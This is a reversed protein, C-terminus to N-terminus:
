RAGAPAVVVAGAMTLTGVDTMPAGILVQGDDLAAVAAGLRAHKSSGKIVASASAPVDTVTGKPLADAHWMLLMGFEPMTWTSAFPAGVALVVAPPAEPSASASSASAITEKVHLWELTSGLRALRLGNAGGQLMTVAPVMGRTVHLPVPAAAAAAAIVDGLAYIVVEGGRLTSSLFSSGASPASAAILADGDARGARDGSLAAVRSGFEAIPELGEVVFLLPPSKGRATANMAFYAALDYGYVAGVTPITSPPPSALRHGPAGVVLVRRATTANASAVAFSSGFQDYEAPGELVIDAGARADITKAATGQQWRGETKPSALIGFVAGPQISKGPLPHPLVFSSLQAGIILDDFGDGNLDGGAIEMGLFTADDRTDIVLSPAAALGVGTQGLYVYVRGWYRFHITDNNPVPDADEFSAVPASVALDDIGDQNLDVVALSWGFRAHAMPGVLRSSSAVGRTCNLTVLVAGVQQRGPAGAGYEGVAMDLNGNGDFDGTVISRGRYGLAVPATTAADAPSVSESVSASASATTRTSMTMETAEVINDLDPSLELSADAAVTNISDVYDVTRWWANTTPNTPTTPKTTQTTQTLQTPQTSLTTPEDMALFSIRSIEAAEAALVAAPPAGTAKTMSTVLVDLVGLFAIGTELSLVGRKIVLGASPHLPDKLRVISSPDELKLLEEVHGVFPKLKLVFDRIWEDAADRDAAGAEGGWDEEKLELLRRRRRRRRRSPPPVPPPGDDLWRAIREWVNSAWIAMDDVGGVPHDIVNVAV